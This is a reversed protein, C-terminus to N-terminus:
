PMAYHAAMLRCQNGHLNNGTQIGTPLFAIYNATLGMDPWHALSNGNPDGSKIFNAWYQQLPPWTQPGAASPAPYYAYDLEATHEVRTHGPRPIGFEYRWVKQSRAIERKALQYSPCRYMWDTLLQTGVNGLIADDDPSQPAVLGYLKLASKSAAGYVQAILARTADASGEFIVEQTTNGIIHPVHFVSDSSYLTNRGKPIVWGDASTEMWLLNPDGSPPKLTESVTLLVNTPVKRLATLATRGTPIALKKLLDRGITQNDQASRPPGLVGSEQIAKGFLGIALPSRMLQGIDIAGASQGGVTINNADGGFETINEKVWKLAAIQDLLAYNGSSHHSSEDTLEPSSLFGFVGLRYEITVVVIGHKYIPSDAIDSGSGARNSGGHIWVFVPLKENAQHQPEHVSVYLCDESGNAADKKNWGEDLQACPTAVQSADRVGHWLAVPQPPKWRLDDVPPAAYPISRFMVSGDALEDGRVTGEKVHREAAQSTFALPIFALLVISAIRPKM